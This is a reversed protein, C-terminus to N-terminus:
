ARGDMGVLDWTWRWEGEGQGWGSWAGSGSVLGAWVGGWESCCSLRPRARHAWVGTLLRPLGHVNISIIPIKPTFEKLSM